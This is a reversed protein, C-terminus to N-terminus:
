GNRAVLRGLAELDHEAHSQRLYVTLDAVRRAHAADHCLPGAGLARGVRDLTDSAASEAVARMRRARIEAVRGTALPDADIADAACDLMAEAASLSADVAGLHALAHASEARALPAALSRAGGLWCAAVGVAGHWFGPRAVYWGGQGIAQDDCVWTDIEVTASESDRMGVAQWTDCVPTVADVTEVLFLRSSGDDADATVLAHTLTGAGSAYPKRGVLHWGAGDRRAVLNSARGAAAWVGMVARNPVGLGGEALIACADCHGEFLRGLSLDAAAVEALLTFRERTRGSGPLPLTIGDEVMEVLVASPSVASPRTLSEDQSHLRTAMQQQTGQNPDM